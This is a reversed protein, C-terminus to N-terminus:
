QYFMSNANIFTINLYNLFPDNNFFFLFYMTFMFKSSFIYYNINQYLFNILYLDFNFHNKLNNGLFFHKLFFYVPFFSNLYAFM